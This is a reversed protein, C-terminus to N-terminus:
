SNSGIDIEMEMKLAARRIFTPPANVDKIESNKKKKKESKNM